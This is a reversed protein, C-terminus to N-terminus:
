LQKKWEYNKGYENFGVSKYLAQSATNGGGTSVYMYRTGREKLKNMGYLLTSKMIGRRRYEEVCAVPELVSIKSVPDDWMTCYAIIKENEVDIVVLDMANNYSPSNMMDRYYEYTTTIGGTAIGFLEVRRDIDELDTERIYFGSPLPIYTSIKSLDCFGNFRYSSTRTYGKQKLVKCYYIDKSNAETTITDGKKFLSSEIYSLIESFCNVYEHLIKIYFEDEDLIIFGIEDKDKLVLWTTECMVDGFSFRDFDLAGIHLQPYIHGTNKCNQQLIRRMINYDNENIYKRYNLM